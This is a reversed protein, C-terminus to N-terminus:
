PAFVDARDLTGAITFRQLLEVAPRRDAEETHVLGAFAQAQAAGKDRQKGDSAGLISTIFMAAYVGVVGAVYLVSGAICLGHGNRRPDFRNKWLDRRELELLVNRSSLVVAIVLVGIIAGWFNAPLSESQGAILPVIISALLQILTVTLVVSVAGTNGRRAAFALLWLGVVGLVMPFVCLAVQRSVVLLVFFTALAALATLTRGAYGARQLLVEDSLAQIGRM